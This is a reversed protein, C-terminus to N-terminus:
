VDGRTKRISDLMDRKEAELVDLDIEFFEALLKTRNAQAPILTEDHKDWRGLCLGKTQLWDLFEGCAQSLLAVKHLKEHMKYGSASM